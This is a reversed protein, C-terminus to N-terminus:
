ESKCSSKSEPAYCAVEGEFFVPFFNAGGMNRGLFTRLGMVGRNKWFFTERGWIKRLFYKAGGYKEWFNNQVGMNKGSFIEGGGGYSSM